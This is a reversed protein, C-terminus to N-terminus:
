LEVRNLQNLFDAAAVLGLASALGIRSEGSRSGFRAVTLELPLRQNNCPVIRAIKVKTTASGTTPYADQESIRADFRGAIACLM